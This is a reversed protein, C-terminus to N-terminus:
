PQGPCHPWTPLLGGGGGAPDWGQQVGGGSHGPTRRSCSSGLAAIRVAPRQRGESGLAPGWSSLAPCSVGMEPAPHPPPPPDEGEKRQHKQMKWYQCLCVKRLYNGCLTCLSSGPLAGELTCTPSWGRM